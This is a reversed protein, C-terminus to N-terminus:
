QLPTLSMLITKITSQHKEVTNLPLSFTLVYTHSANSVNFIYCLLFINTNSTNTGSGSFSNMQIGNTTRPTIGPLFNFTKFSPTIWAKFTNMSRAAPIFYESLIVNFDGKPNRAINNEVAWGEPFTIEFEPRPFQVTEAQALNVSLLMIIIMTYKMLKPTAVSTLITLLKKTM